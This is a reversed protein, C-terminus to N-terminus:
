RPLVYIPRPPHLIIIFLIMPLSGSYFYLLSLVFYIKILMLLFVCLLFFPLLTLLFFLSVPLKGYVWSDPRENGKKICDLDALKRLIYPSLYLIRPNRKDKKSGFDKHDICDLYVLLLAIGCGPIAAWDTTAKKWEFIAKRLEDVVLQCLDVNKLKAADFDKVM